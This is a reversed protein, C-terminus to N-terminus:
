SQPMGDPKAAAQAAADIQAAAAIQPILEALVADLAVSIAVVLAEMSADAAAAVHRARLITRRPTDGPLAGETELVLEIEAVGQPHEGRADCQEHLGLLEGSLTFPGAPRPAAGDVREFRGDARLRDLLLRTTTEAPLEGFRRYLYAGARVAGERWAIERRALFGRAVLPRVRLPALRHTAEERGVDTSIPVSLMFENVPPPPSNCALLCASLCSSTWRWAISRLRDSRTM